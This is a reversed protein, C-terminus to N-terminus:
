AARKEDNTRTRRQSLAWTLVEKIAELQVEALHTADPGHVQVIEVSHTLRRATTRSSHAM